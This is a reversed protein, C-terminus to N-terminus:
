INVITKNLKLRTAYYIGGNRKAKTLLGIPSQTILTFRPSRPVHGLHPIQTVLSRCSSQTVVSEFVKHLFVCFHLNKTFIGHCFSQTILSYFTSKM